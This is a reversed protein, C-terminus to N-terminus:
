RKAGPAVASAVAKMLVDLGFPKRLAATAGLAVTGEVDERGSIAIVPVHRTREDERLLRLVELGDLGPLRLDLLVLHPPKMRAEAIALIPQREISLRYRPGAPAAAAFAQKVVEGFDVDDDILLVQLEDPQLVATGLAPTLDRKPAADAGALPVILTFTSGSGLASTLQVEGGMIGLLKRVIALGLGTGGHKRTTSADVQRFPEFISAHHEPAIGPGTDSV